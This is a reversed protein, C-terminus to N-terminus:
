YLSLPRAYFYIRRIEDLCLLRLNVSCMESTLKVTIPETKMGTVLTRQPDLFVAIERSRHSTTTVTTTQDRNRIHRILLPCRGM